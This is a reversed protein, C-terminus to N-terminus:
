ARGVKHRETLDAELRDIVDLMARRRNSVDRELERLQELTAELEADSLTPLNALTGDSVLRTSAATSSRTSTPPSIAPCAARSRRRLAAGPGVLIKPLTAILDGLSGGTARRDIEARVIDIRAQALRRVYSLETEVDLCDEHM